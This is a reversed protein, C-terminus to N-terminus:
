RDKREHYTALDVLTVALAVALQPAITPLREGAPDDLVLAVVLTAWVAIYVAVRLRFGGGPRQRHAHPTDTM